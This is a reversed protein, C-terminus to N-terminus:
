GQLDSVQVVTPCIKLSEKKKKKEKKEAVCQFGFIAVICYSKSNKRIKPPQFGWFKCIKSNKIKLKM